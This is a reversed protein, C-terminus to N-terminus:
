KLLEPPIISPQWLFRIATKRERGGADLSKIEFIKRLLRLITGRENVWQGMFEEDSSEYVVKRGKKSSAAELQRFLLLHLYIFRMKHTLFAKKKKWNDLKRGTLRASVMLVSTFNGFYFLIM